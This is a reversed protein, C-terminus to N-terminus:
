VICITPLTLHTYSVTSGHDLTLKRAEDYFERTVCQGPNGEGQVPEIAMLEIFIGQEEADSFARRLSEVDNAPVLILNDRDRFTALQKDYKGKCSHSLQAPRDTRGHFAEEIALLKIEAGEYRGGKDTHKRANVDAIRLSVTVSESGSNM